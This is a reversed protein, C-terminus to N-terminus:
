CAELSSPGRIDGTESAQWFVSQEVDLCTLWQGSCAQTDICVYGPVHAPLGRVQGTHGCVIIKGSCHPRESGSFGTWRLYSSDQLEVPEDPAANGHVFIHSDTQWSDVFGRLFALHSEPIGSLQGGYSDLTARAGSGLWLLRPSGRAVSQFLMEEHNGCIGIVKVTRSLELLQEIVGRSNPGRDILDGLVVVTDESQIQVTNLLLTLANCCGHIDGIALIRGGMSV